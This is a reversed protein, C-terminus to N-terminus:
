MVATTTSPTPMAARPPASTAGIVVTCGAIPASIMVTAKTTTTIPPSPLKQPTTSAASSTPTTRPSVMWKTDEAPSAEIYTRINRTSSSRGRPRRPSRMSFSSFHRRRQMHLIPRQPNTPPANTPTPTPPSPPKPPTPSAASSTPTTRPRVMWKTAEAPSAEIYTRINRTSSSRGRPRRPSRMSFSSFHRRRQMHLIPRQPNTGQCEGHQGEDQREDAQRHVGRRHQDNEGDGGEAEVDQDAKGAQDGEAVGGPESDAGVRGGQRLPMPQGVLDQQRDQQCHRQDRRQRRDDADEHQTPAADVERQHGQRQRGEAVGDREAPGLDGAALVAEAAERAAGEPRDIQAVAPGVVSEACRDGEADEEQQQPQQARGEAVHQRCDARVLLAGAELAVGDLAVLEGGGDDRRRHRPECAPERAELM